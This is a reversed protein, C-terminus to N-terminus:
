CRLLTYTRYPHQTVPNFGELLSTKDLYWGDPVKIDAKWIKPRRIEKLKPEPVPLNRSSSYSSERIRKETCPEKTIYAALKDMEGDVLRNDVIGHPWAENVIVDADQIRNMVLHVHWAGKTGCEINCIWKLDVGAKKYRKRVKRIFDAFDKKAAAMDAPREERRYTLTIFLDNKHFHARLKRRCRVTKNYANRRAIQEPTPRSRKMRRMGPAGYRGRHYEEIEIADPFTYTKRLFAM